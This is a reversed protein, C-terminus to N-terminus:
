NKPMIKVSHSGLPLVLKKLITKLLEWMIQKSNLLSFQALTESIVNEIVKCYDNNEIHQNNTWIGFLWILDFHTKNSNHLKKQQNLKELSDQHFILRTGVQCMQPIKKLAFFLIAM